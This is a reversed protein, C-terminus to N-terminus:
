SDLETSQRTPMNIVREVGLAGEESGAEISVSQVDQEVPDVAGDLRLAVPRLRTVSDVASCKRSTHSERRSATGVLTLVEDGNSSERMQPRRADAAAAEEKRSSSGWESRSRSRSGSALSEGRRDAAGEAPLGGTELDAIERLTNSHRPPGRERMLAPCLKLLLPKLALLSACVIGTNAEVSSWTIADVSTDTWDRRAYAEHVLAVRALSVACVFFGVLFVVVLGLKQKRALRLRTIPRLPVVFVAFDLVINVAATSIWYTRTSRCRGPLAAPLWLKAVPSCLFVAGFLGWLLAPVLAALLAYTAARMARGAFIRLYQLLISAKTVNVLVVYVCNWALVLKANAPLLDLPRTWTYGGIGKAVEAATLGCVAWSLVLSILIIYDDFGVSQIILARTMLRLVVVVTALSTLVITPTLASWQLDPDDPQPDGM